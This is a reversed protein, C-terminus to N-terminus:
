HNLFVNSTTLLRTVLPQPECGSVKDHKQRKRDPKRPRWSLTLTSCNPSPRRQQCRRRHQGRQKHVEQAMRPRRSSRRPRKRSEAEVFDNAISENIEIQLFRGVWTTNLTQREMKGNKICMYTVAKGAASIGDSSESLTSITGYPGMQMFHM